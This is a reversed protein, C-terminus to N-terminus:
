YRRKFSVVGLTTAIARGDLRIVSFRRGGGFGEGKLRSFLAADARELWEAVFAPAAEKASKVMKDPWSSEQALIKM